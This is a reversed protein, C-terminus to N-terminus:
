GLYSLAVTINAPSGGVYKTFTLSEEMPRNIENPNLDVAARGIAVFDMEKNPDFRLSNM